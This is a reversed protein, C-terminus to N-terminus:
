QFSIEFLNPWLKGTVYIKGTGADFAIGNLVAEGDTYKQQRTNEKTHNSLLGSLNAIGAVQGNAPDIKLIYDSQYKNAYIFGHIFELENINNVPGNNDTVSVIRRTSFDTPNLFYLNSSGDSVILNTSDNTIGWGETKLPFEQIRKLTKADYVFGKRGKWTLQYLKGNLITIGEGFYVSDLPVKQSVKGTALDVKGVWSHYPNYEPSGGTSEMLQGEFVLLGQTYSLTDHPYVKTVTYQLSAPAPAGGTETTSTAASDTNGTNNCGTMVVAVLLGFSISILSKM